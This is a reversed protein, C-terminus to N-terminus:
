RMLYGLPHLRPVTCMSAFLTNNGLARLSGLFIVKLHDLCGFLKISNWGNEKRDGTSRSKVSM